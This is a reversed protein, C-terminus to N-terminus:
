QPPTHLRRLSTIPPLILRSVLGTVSAMHWVGTLPLCRLCPRYLSQWKSPPTFTFPKLQTNPPIHAMAMLLPPTMDALSRFLTEWPGKKWKARARDKKVLLAIPTVISLLPALKISKKRGWKLQLSPDGIVPLLKAQKLTFGLLSQSLTPPRAVTFKHREAVLVLHIPQIQGRLRLPRQLMAQRVTLPLRAKKALAWNLYPIDSQLPSPKVPVLRALLTLPPLRAPTWMLQWIDM